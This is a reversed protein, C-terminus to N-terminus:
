AVGGNADAPKATEPWDNGGVSQAAANRKAVDREAQKIVRAAEFQKLETSSSLQRDVVASAYKVKDERDNLGLDRFLTQMKRQQDATIASDQGNVQTQRPREERQQSRRAAREALQADNDDNDPAVGTVACLCYRRAYTIAGGIEQPSGRDPAPLPYEGGISEGSVHRLEYVLVFRGESLTPRSTFSMGLKGLLPLVAHSVDALDAYTYRYSGGSKTPVNATEDKAVHPLQAQLEALAVALPSTATDTM